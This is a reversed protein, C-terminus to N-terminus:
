IRQRKEAWEHAKRHLYREFDPHGIVLSYEPRDSFAFKHRLIALAQEATTARESSLSGGAVGNMSQFLANHRSADAVGAAIASRLLQTTSRPDAVAMVESFETLRFWRVVRGGVTKRGSDFALRSLAEPDHGAHWGLPATGPSTVVKTTKDHDVYTFAFGPQLSARLRILGAQTSMGTQDVAALVERMDQTDIAAQIHREPALLYSAFRTAEGEHALQRRDSEAGDDHEPPALDFQDSSPSCVLRGGAYGLHWGMVVHGLEHAVTFLRRRPHVGTRVFIMPRDSVLDVVVADCGSFPWPEESIDAWERTLTDVDIPPVLGFRDVLTAALLVPRDQPALVGWM